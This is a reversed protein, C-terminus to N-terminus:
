NRRLRLPNFQLSLRRPPRPARLMDNHPRLPTSHLPTRFRSRFRSRFRLSSTSASHSPLLPTLLYSRLSSTPASHPPPRPTLLHFRLSSTSVSHPPLASHPSLASHPPLASDPPLASHPPPLPTRFHLLILFPSSPISPYPRERLLATIAEHYCIPYRVVQCSLKSLPTFPHLQQDSL